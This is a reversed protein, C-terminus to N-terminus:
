AISFRAVNDNYENTNDSAKAVVGGDRVIM